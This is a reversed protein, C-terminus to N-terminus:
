YEQYIVVGSFFLIIVSLYIDNGWIIHILFKVLFIAIVTFLKEIFSNSILLAYHAIMVVTGIMFFNMERKYTLM